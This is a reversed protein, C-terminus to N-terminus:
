AVGPAQARNAVAPPEREIPTLEGFSDQVLVKISAGEELAVAALKAGALAAEARSGFHGIHREAGIIRWEEGVQVIAYRRKTM